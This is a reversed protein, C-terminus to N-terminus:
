IDYITYSCLRPNIGTNSQVFKYSITMKTIIYLCNYSQNKLQAWQQMSYSRLKNLNKFNLDLLHSQNNVINHHGLTLVINVFSYFAIFDLARSISIARKKKLNFHETMFSLHWTTYTQLGLAPNALVPLDWPSVPRGTQSFPGAGPDVLLNQRLVQVSSGADVCHNLDHVSIASSRLQTGLAWAPCSVVAQLERELPDSARAEKPVQM